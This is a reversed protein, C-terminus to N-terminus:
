RRRWQHFYELVRLACAPIHKKRWVGAAFKNAESWTPYIHLTSLLKNLGLRHTKALIFENILEGAHESVITVGIIKDSKAATLIKVFGHNKGETIARDLENIDYRSVEVDINQAKAEQENMGVRAIEPAVFTCWAMNNYDVKFRKFPSFLANIAAYWAQHSAAHTFQYPGTADGCVYINPINTQLFPNAKITQDPNLSVSLAELGFGTVNAHRGLAILIKDCTMTHQQGHSIFEAHIAQGQQKVAQLEHGYAMTIGESAFQEHLLESVDVDEVKLLRTHRDVITVEAGLRNFAQAMECGIPGAGVVLLKKPLTTLQWLNDSCLYDIDCLGPIDPIFARAGTALIISRCSLLQENVKIHHPDIINAYGQFCDVGLDTFREISDHPAIADISDQVRAMVAAFDVEVSTTKIGYQEAHAMEYAMNASKILTKSPVCGTNLCDGGMADAEILAVKANTAAAILSAVLGGSGAGIVIVNFDYAM